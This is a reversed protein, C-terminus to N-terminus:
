NNASQVATKLLARPCFNNWLSFCDFQHQKSTITGSSLMQSKNQDWAPEESSGGKKIKQNEPAFWSVWLKAEIDSSEM